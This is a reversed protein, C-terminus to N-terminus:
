GAIPQPEGALAAFLRARVDDIPHWAPVITGNVHFRPVGDLGIELARRRDDLTAERHDEPDALRTWIREPIQLGAEEVAARLAAADDVAVGQAFNASWVARSLSWLDPADTGGDDRVMALLRHALFPNHLYTHRTDDQRVGVSALFDLLSRHAAAAQEEDMGYRAYIESVPMGEPPDLDHLRIFRWRLRVAPLGPDAAAEDLVRRITTLAGHCWPCSVDVFLEVDAVGRAGAPRANDQM